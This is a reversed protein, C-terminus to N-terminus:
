AVRLRRVPPPTPTELGMDHHFIHTVRTRKAQYMALDAAHILADISDGDSPVISIGIPASIKVRRGRAIIPEAFASQVREVVREVDETVRVDALLITFEDGGLRAATDGGRTVAKLRRSLEVLVEDGASHGLSDNIEKFGDLDMMLVAANRNQRKASEVAQGLRDRFLTRNPLDTLPDHLAQYENMEAQARLADEAAKRKTIDQMLVIDFTKNGDADRVSSISSDVWVVDGTTQELRHEARMTDAGLKERKEFESLVASMDETPLFEVISRGELDGDAAAVLKHMAPNADFITGEPGLMMMGVLASSYTVQFRALTDLQERKANFEAARSIAAGLMVAILELTQREEAGLRDTESMRVVILSAVPDDGHFLPVAILSRDQVIANMRANIRPDDETQEILLAARGTFAHNAISEETRRRTGLTPEATGCAAVVALEEGEVLSVMAGDAHTLEMSREAILALVRDLDIGAMAIDRQTEVIMTLRESKARLEIDALKRETIDQIMAIASPGDAGRGPVLTTRTQCWLESGDKCVYRKELEYHQRRGAMLEAHLVLQEPLHDPHILDVFTLNALEAETYGLMEQCPGNAEYAHGEGDIRAIGIAAGEFISQFRADSGALRAAQGADDRM